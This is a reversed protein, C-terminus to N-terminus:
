ILGDALVNGDFDLAGSNGARVGLDVARSVM